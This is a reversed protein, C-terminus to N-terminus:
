DKGAILKILLDSYKEGIKSAGFSNFHCGDYRYDVGLKDTNLTLFVKDNNEIISKQSNILIESSESDCFSVLAMGIKTQNSAESFKNFIMNMDKIYNQYYSKDSSKNESEGQHWLVYNIEINNKQLSQMIFSFKNSLVGRSWDSARSGGKTFGM